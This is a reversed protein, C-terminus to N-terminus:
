RKILDIGTKELLDPQMDMLSTLGNLIKLILAEINRDEKTYRQLYKDLLKILIDYAGDKGAKVRHAIDKKCETQFM